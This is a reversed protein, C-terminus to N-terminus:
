DHLLGFAGSVFFGRCIGLSSITQTDEWAARRLRGQLLPPELILFPRASSKGLIQFTHTMQQKVHIVQWCEL